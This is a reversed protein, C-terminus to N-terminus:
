RGALVGKVEDTVPDTVDKFEPNKDIFGAVMSCVPVIRKGEARTAELAERVLITALGRGGFADDIVTHPFIRQEGFDLYETFGAKTGDVSIVFRDSEATVETPAGTKDTSM